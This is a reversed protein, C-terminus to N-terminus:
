EEHWGACDPSSSSPIRIFETCNVSKLVAARGLVRCRQLQLKSIAQQGSIRRLTDELRVPEGGLPHEM